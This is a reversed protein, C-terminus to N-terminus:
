PAPFIHVFLFIAGNERVKSPTAEDVVLKASLEVVVNPPKGESYKEYSDRFGIVEFSIGQCERGEVDYKFTDRRVATNTHRNSEGTLAERETARPM